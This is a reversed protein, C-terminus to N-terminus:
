SKAKTNTKTTISFNINVTSRRLLAFRGQDLSYLQREYEKPILDGFQPTWINNIFSFVGWREADSPIFIGYKGARVGYFAENYKNNCLTIEKPTGVSTITRNRNMKYFIFYHDEWTMSYKAM